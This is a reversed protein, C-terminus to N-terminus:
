VSDVANRKRREQAPRPLSNPWSTTPSPPRYWTQRAEVRERWIALAPTVVLEMVLAASMAIGPLGYRALAYLRALGGVLVLTTLLRFRDGHTEIRPVASWYGLGIALLLGSLYREHSDGALSPALHRDLAGMGGLAGALGAVIPVLALIAVTAQLLRREFGPSPIPM